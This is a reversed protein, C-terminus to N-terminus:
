RMNQLVALPLTVSTMYVPNQAGALNVGFCEWPAGHQGKRFDYAQLHTLFRDFVGKALAPEVAQLAEILWGTPTHWYAGNQYTGKRSSGEWATTASFDHTTPVHRVAGQYEIVHQAAGGRVADAVTARARRAANAPLVGLHLAFLTAWVDPERCKKTAGRLWGGIKAPESFLPVLHAAITDATQRFRAAADAQGAAQCLTGLQRAARWRLLTAFSMAGLLYISDQFGFGVARRPPEAVVAGTAADVEPAQFAKVLRDLLTLGAVTEALFATQQTDRWYAWAIHIFYYHDDAPPLPGWPGGGQNEGASYTGPYYVPQGDMRIHDAIAYPPIIAGSQLKREAPGSQCRAILKLQPLMEDPGILGCDLSMAYDRIWFAPYNGGPTILPIGTTNVGVGKKNAGPAVHAAQVTAAAIEKLFTLAGPDWVAAAKAPAAAAPAPAAGAAAYRGVAVVSALASVRRCFERRSLQTEM